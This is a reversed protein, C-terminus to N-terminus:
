MTAMRCNLTDFPYEWYGSASNYSAELDDFGIPIGEPGDPERVSFSVTYIGSFDSATGQLVFGDQVAVNPQPSIIAIDPPTAVEVTISVTAETSCLGDSVTYNFSDPGVYGTDPYYSAYGTSTFISSVGHAPVVVGFGYEV